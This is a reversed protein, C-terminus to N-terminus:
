MANASQCAYVSECSFNDVGKVQRMNSILSAAAGRSAVFKSLVHENSPLRTGEVLRLLARCVEAIEKQKGVLGVAAATDDAPAAAAFFLFLRLIDVM